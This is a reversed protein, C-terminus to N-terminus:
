FMREFLSGLLIDAGALFGALILVTIIVVMAAHKTENYNPWAVKRLEQETEILFDAVKPRGLVQLLVVAVIGPIAIRTILVIISVEGLIPLNAFVERSAEPMFGWRGVVHTMGWCGYLILIWSLWFALM